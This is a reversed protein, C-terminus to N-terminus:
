QRSSLDARKVDPGLNIKDVPKLIMYLLAVGWWVM